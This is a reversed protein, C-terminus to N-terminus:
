AFRLGRMQKLEHNLIVREGVTVLADAREQEDEVHLLFTYGM